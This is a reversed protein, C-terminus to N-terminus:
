KLARHSITAPSRRPGSRSVRPSRERSRFRRILEEDLSLGHGVFGREGLLQGHDGVVVLITNNWDRAQRIEALTLAEPEPRESFGLGLHPYTGTFLAAHAPATWSSVSIAQDFRTGERALQALV